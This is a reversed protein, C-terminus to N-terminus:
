PQLFSTVVSNSALKVTVAQEFWTTGPLGNEIRVFRGVLRLSTPSTSSAVVSFRDLCSTVDRNRNFETDPRFNGSSTVLAAGPVRLVTGPMTDPTTGFLTPNGTRLVRLVRRRAWLSVGSWKGPVIPTSFTANAEYYPRTIGFVMLCTWKSLNMDANKPVGNFSYIIDNIYVPTDLISVNTGDANVRLMNPTSQELERALEGLMIQVAKQEHTRWSGTIFSRSGSRFILFAAGLFLSLIGASILIEVLTFGANRRM